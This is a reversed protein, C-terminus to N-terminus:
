GKTYCFINIYNERERLFLGRKKQPLQLWIQVKMYTLTGLNFLVLVRLLEKYWMAESISIAVKIYKELKTINNNSHLM